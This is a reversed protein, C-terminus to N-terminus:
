IDTPNSFTQICLVAMDLTSHSKFINSHVISGYGLNLSASFKYIFYQEEKKVQSITEFNNRM